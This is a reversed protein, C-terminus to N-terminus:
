SGSGVSAEARGLVAGGQQDELIASYDPMTQSAWKGLAKATIPGEYVEPPKSKDERSLIVLIVLVIVVIICYLIIYYLIIYHTHIHTYTDTCIYIYIYMCVYM